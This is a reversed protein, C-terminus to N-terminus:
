LPKKLIVSYKRPYNKPTPKIKNTIILCRKDFNEKDRTLEAYVTTDYKGGCATIAGKARELEDAAKQSKMSIFKGGCKVFPLCLESLIPLDAVARAIAIDFMERYDSKQSLEEARASIAKINKLGLKDATEIIYNIRKTTSDLGLIELDPRCIALPLSPFGAGCGVDIVKAGQPIFESVTLSDVYHKLIVDPLSTIATLNMYKNVELMHESLDFLHELKDDSPLECSPNLAFIQKAEDFFELKNM